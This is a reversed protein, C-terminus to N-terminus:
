GTHAWVHFLLGIQCRDSTLCEGMVRRNSVWSGTQVDLSPVEPSSSLVGEIVNTITLIFFCSCNLKRRILEEYYWEHSRKRSRSM